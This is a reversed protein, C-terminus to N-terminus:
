IRKLYKSTCPIMTFLEWFQTLGGKASNDITADYLGNVLSVSLNKNLAWYDPLWNKGTLLHLNKVNLDTQLSLTTMM